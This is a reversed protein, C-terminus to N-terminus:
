NKNSSRIVVRMKKRERIGNKEFFSEKGEFTEAYISTHGYKKVLESILMSGVGSKQKDKAVVIEALWTCLIDDSFGRAFGVLKNNQIAFFHYTSNKFSQETAIVSYPKEGVWGVDVYLDIIESVKIKTLDETIIINNM